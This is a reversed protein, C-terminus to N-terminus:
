LLGFNLTENRKEKNVEKEKIDDEGRKRRTLM